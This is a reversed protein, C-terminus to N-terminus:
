AEHNPMTDLGGDLSSRDRALGGLISDLWSNRFLGRPDLINAAEAMAELQGPPYLRRLAAPGSSVPTVGIRKAWHPRGGLAAAAREMAGFYGDALGTAEPDRLGLTVHVRPEAGDPGVQDPSALTDDPAVFRWEQIFGSPTGKAARSFEHFLASAHRAPVSWETETHFPVRFPIVQLRDSRAVRVRPAAFSQASLLNLPAQLSPARAGLWLFLDFIDTLVNDWVRAAAQWAWHPQDPDGSAASHRRVGHLVTWPTHPVVWLKLFEFRGALCRLDCRDAKGRAAAGLAHSGAESGSSADVSRALCQASLELPFSLSGAAPAVCDAQLAALSPWTPPLPQSPSAAPRQFVDETLLLREEAVLDFAPGVRLEVWVVVGLAGLHARAADFLLARRRMARAAPGDGIAEGVAELVEQSWLSTWPTDRGVVRGVADRWVDLDLKRLELVPPLADSETFNGAVLGVAVVSSSMGPSGIGSGHCATALVGGVTQSDVSPVNHMALGHKDLQEFLQGLRLGAGVRVIGPGVVAFEDTGPGLSLATAGASRTRFWVPQLGQAPLQHRRIVILSASPATFKYRRACECVAEGEPAAALSWSHGAGVTKIRQGALSSAKVARQVGDVSSVFVTSQGTLNVKGDWSSQPIGPRRIWVHQLLGIRVALLGIVAAVLWNCTGM